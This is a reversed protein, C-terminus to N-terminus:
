VVAPLIKKFLSRPLIFSKGEECHLGTYGTFCTCTYSNIRDICSGDHQCPDSECENIDLSDVFSQLINIINYCYNFIESLLTNM